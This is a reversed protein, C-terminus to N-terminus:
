KGNEQTKKIKKVKMEHYNFAAADHTTTVNPSHDDDEVGFSSDVVNSSTISLFVFLFMMLSSFSLLLSSCDHYAM